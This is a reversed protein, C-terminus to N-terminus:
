IEYSYIEFINKFEGSLCDQYFIVRLENGTICSELNMQCESQYKFTYILVKLASKSVKCVKKLM